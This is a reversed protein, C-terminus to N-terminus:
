WGPARRLLFNLPPGDAPGAPHRVGRIEQGCAAPPLSGIWAADIRVGDASEDLAFEGDDDIDGSVLANLDNGPASRKLHGRVGGTYEPHREFLMAGTSTPRAEDGGEPWLSLRWLGYLRQPAIGAQAPCPVVPATSAQGQAPVAAPLGLLGALLFLPAAARRMM